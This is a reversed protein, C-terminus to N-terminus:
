GQLEVLRWRSTCKGASQIGLFPALRHRMKSLQVKISNRTKFDAENAWIADELTEISVFKGNAAIFAAIIQAQQRTLAIEIGKGSLRFTDRDLSWGHFEGSSFPSLGMGVVGPLM